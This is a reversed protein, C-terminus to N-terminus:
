LLLRPYLRFPEFAAPFDPGRLAPELQRLMRAFPEIDLPQDVNVVGAAPYFAAYMTALMAGLSHGVVVPREIRLETVLRHLDVGVGEFNAPLGASEGHGPLDVAVCRFREPLRDIIPRWASRSFTLGHIFVVPFGSGREEYALASSRLTNGEM